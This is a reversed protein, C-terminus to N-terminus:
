RAKLQDGIAQIIAEVAQAGKPTLQYTQHQIRVAVEPKLPKTAIIVRFRATRNDDHFPLSAIFGLYGSLPESFEVLQATELESFAKLRPESPLSYVGPNNDFTGILPEQFNSAYTGIDQLPIRMLEEIAAPSLTGVRQALDTGGKDGARQQIEWSLTGINGKDARELKNPILDLTRRVPDRFIFFFLLVLLPWAVTKVFDLTGVLLDCVTAKEPPKSQVQNTIIAHVVIPPGVAAEPTRAEDPM